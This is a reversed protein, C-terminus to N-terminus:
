KQIWTEIPDDIRISERMFFPEAYAAGIKSGWFRMMATLSQLFDPSSLFTQEGTFNQDFQSRYAQIAAMKQEFVPSVDCLFSPTFDYHSHYYLVREPRHPAAEPEYNKVGALFAAETVLQSTKVHDSHREHWHPTLVLAPRFARIAKVIPAKHAACIELYGDPLGLNQRIDLQLIASAQVTEAQRTPLDGRTSLEGQTLDIVGIRYGRRKMMLLFGSCHLEVDDPHAAFALIDVTNM